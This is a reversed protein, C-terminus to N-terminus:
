FQYIALLALSDQSDTGILPSDSIEDALSLHSVLGLLMWHQNLLYSAKISTEYNVASNTEYSSRGVSNDVQSGSVGYYYNVYNADMWHAAVSASVNFRSAYEYLPIEATLSLTDSESNSSVDTSADIALWGFSAGYNVVTETDPEDYGKFIDPESVDNIAFDSSEYGDYRRGVGVYFGLGDNAEVQYAVLNELGFQWNGISAEFFPLVTSESDIDTWARSDAMLGAGLKVNWESEGDDAAQAYLTCSVLYLTIPIINKLLYM